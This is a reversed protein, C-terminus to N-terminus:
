TFLAMKWVNFISVPGNPSLSGVRGNATIWVLETAGGRGTESLGEPVTGPANNEFRAVVVGVAARVSYKESTTDSGELGALGVFKKMVTSPAVGVRNSGFLGGDITVVWPETSSQVM